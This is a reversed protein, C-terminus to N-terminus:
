SYINETTDEDAICRRVKRWEKLREEEMEEGTNREWGKL